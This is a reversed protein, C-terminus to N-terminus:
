AAECCLVLAQAVYKRVMSVSVGLRVAIDAYKM